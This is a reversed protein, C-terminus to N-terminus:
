RGASERDASVWVGDANRVSLEPRGPILQKGDSFGEPTCELENVMRERWLSLRESSQPLPALNREEHPDSQLDFLQEEGTQTFWIYKEQGDTLYQNGDAERYFGGHEGHIYSRWPLISEGGNILSLLSSGDVSKPVEVGAADLLTPMVDQLGVPETIHQAPSCEMWEPTRILFPVRASAQYPLTKRFRNHDGLMEGHDSTMLVMSNEHTLMGMLRGIQDDIHEILGYYGARCRRMAEATWLSGSVAGPIEQALDSANARVEGREVFPGTIHMGPAAGPSQEAWDGIVPPPLERAICRDYHLQPPTLPPHPAFYSIWLFLPASPDRRRWVRLAENTVWSTHSLSEPLNSPRGVWGNGNVGPSYGYRVDDVGIERLWETYDDGFAGDSLVMQDFGYRKRKPQM